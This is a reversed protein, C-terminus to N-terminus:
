PIGRLSRRGALYAVGSLLALILLAAAAVPLPRPWRPLPLEPPDLGALPLAWGTLWWGLLAIGLGSVAAILVLIPYAPLTARRVAARSLGQGRLATLDEVRRPRDVAAALILAGAALLTALVAALAYFGLALAPGQEDLQARVRDARLDGTVVLGRAELLEVIGAPAAGSLWVQATGAAAPETTLRDAYELDVLTAQAGAGPVVPLRVARSVPLDRGDLGTIAPGRAAGATAVPLPYPTDVPQLFVGEPHGSLAVDVRLGDDAAALTGGASARWAGPEARGLGRVILSGAVDLTGYAQLIRVANLRCGERCEAVQQRYTHRGARVVGLQVVTDGRGTVSSLALTLGAGRAATFGTAAIDLSVETGTLVVPEPAEPRLLRAVEQRGPGGRPWSAVAALRTTDVALVPPQGSVIPLPLAAMAFRRDPDVARVATLLQQRGGGQVTLVREAGVGLRAETARGQAAVDIAVVALVAVAVAATLLAFLRTAGPRRSLQFGALAAGTRGHRLARRAYRTVGPLLAWALLLAPAVLVLASATMGVGTLTGGSVALQVAAVVALLGAVVDVTLTGARGRVGPARRLLDSVPSVLQRREAALATLVVALTALPAYRLSALGPDAGVGPFRWAAVANVLVQGALCGAVAGAVIAVLSEGAGLWWRQGRRAGRLAVVALEPRRGETGYGVALFITLCALLILPVALVPVILHAAARGADIRDMLDGLRTQLSVGAGLSALDGRAAALGDRLAPLRDVALAGPAAMGDISQAPPGHEMVSVAAATVFAPEGPRDGPDAAFYGHTGWYIDGAEPVEYTGAVYFRKATGRAQWVQYDPEDNFVAYALTVSDGARVGLRVATRAGLVVDAEGVACRGTVVRLHECVGQRHVLRTRYQDDRELGTTPYEAAYVYHFGPLDLVTAGTEAFSDDPQDTSMVVSREAPSAYRLQGAAVARDAARLYAPAAVAAAVAVLSLLALTMAQGRRSWVMALVLAIM